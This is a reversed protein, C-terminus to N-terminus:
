KMKLSLAHQLWLVHSTLYVLISPQTTAFKLYSNTNHIFVIWGLIKFIRVRMLLSSWKWSYCKSGSLSHTHRLTQPWLLNVVFFNMWLTEINKRYTTKKWDLNTVLNNFCQVLIHGLENHTESSKSHIQVLKAMAFIILGYHISVM